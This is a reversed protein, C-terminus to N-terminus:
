DESRPRDHETGTRSASCDTVPARSPFGDWSCCQPRCPPSGRRRLSHRRSPQMQRRTSSRPAPAAPSSPVALSFPLPPFGANLDPCRSMPFDGDDGVDRTMGGGRALLPSTPAGDDGVDAFWSDVAFPSWIQWSGRCAPVPQWFRRFQFAFGYWQHVRIVRVPFQRCPLTTLFRRSRTITAGPARRRILAGRSPPLLRAKVGAARAQ